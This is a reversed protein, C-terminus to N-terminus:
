RGGRFQFRLGNGNLQLGDMNFNLRGARERVAEPAAAKDEDTNWPGQWQINNDKDRAILNSAGNNSNIEISGQEDMMRITANNQMQMGPQAQLDPLQQLQQMRERMENFRRQMDAANGGLNLANDGFHFEQMNGEILDRIREAMEDPMAELGRIEPINQGRFQAMADPRKGLTVNLETGKGQQILGVKVKDGPQHALIINNIETPSFAPKDDITIIIDHTRIGAQEAPGEPMVSRVVVGEGNRVGMHTALLEPIPGTVLGMYAVERAAQPQAAQHEGAVSPPAADDVPAEIALAPLSALALPILRLPSIPNTRM